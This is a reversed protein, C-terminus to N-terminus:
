NIFNTFIVPLVIPIDFVNALYNGYTMALVSFVLIRPGVGLTRLILIVAWTTVAFGFAYIVFLIPFFLSYNGATLAHVVTLYLLHLPHFGSSPGVGGYSFFDGHAASKAYALYYFGDGYYETWAWTDHQFGRIVIAILATLMPVVTLLAAGSNSGFLKIYRHWLGTM